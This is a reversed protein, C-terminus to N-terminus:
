VVKFLKMILKWGELGDNAEIIQFNYLSLFKKITVRSDIADDIILVKKM